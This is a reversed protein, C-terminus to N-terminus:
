NLTLATLEAIQLNTLCAQRGWVQREDKIILGQKSSVRNIIATAIKDRIANIHTKPGNGEFWETLNQKIVNYVIKEVPPTGLEQKTQGRFQPEPFTVKIAAVLGESVDDKAARHKNEKALKALKRTDKLLIDNVARTLAREFGAVHTGGQSTPITNVFSEQTTDYSHVLTPSGRSHM